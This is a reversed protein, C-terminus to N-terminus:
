AGSEGIDRAAARARVADRLAKARAFGRSAVRRAAERLSPRVARLSVIPRAALAFQKKYQSAGALFDYERMGAEIARRIGYAHMVIGPRIGKPVDMKRGSQYFYVKGDHVLNYAAAIPEHRVALWSLEIARRECLLPMVAAHFAAFKKSAFVGDRGDAGWREGHLSTLVQKAHDLEDARCAVHVTAEGGAWQEFDRLSRTLLYRGSSPLSKLYAEWSSPLPVFPAEGALGIEVGLGHKELASALLRPM